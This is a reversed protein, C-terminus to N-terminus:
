PLTDHDHDTFREASLGESDQVQHDDPEARATPRKRLRYIDIKDHRFVPHHESHPIAEHTFLRSAEEWFYGDVDRWRHETALLVVTDPGSMDSLARVLLEFNQLEYIIDAGLVVDYPPKVEPCEDGWFLEAVRIGADAATPFNHRVNRELVPMVDGLDTLVTEAPGRCAAAMGSLGCGSGLEIVRKGRWFEDDLAPGALYGALVISADWVCSATEEDQEIVIADGAPRPGILTCDNLPFCYTDRFRATHSLKNRRWWPEAATSAM